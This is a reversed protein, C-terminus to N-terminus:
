LTKIPSTFNIKIKDTSISAGAPQIVLLGNTNRVLTGDPGVYYVSEPILGLGSLYYIGETQINVSEGQIAATLTIGVAKGIMGADSPDYYNAQGNIITVVRGSSLPIAAICSFYSTAAPTSNGPLYGVVNNVIIAPSPLSNQVIIDINLGDNVSIIIDEAM